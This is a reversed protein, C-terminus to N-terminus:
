KRLELDDRLLEDTTVGFLEAVRLVLVVTPQKKGAELESIYGHASHGLSTAVEQLTMGRNARLTKLKEGFRSVGRNDQSGRSM